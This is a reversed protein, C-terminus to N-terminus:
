KVLGYRRGYATRIVSNYFKIPNAVASAAANSVGSSGQFTQKVRSIIRKSITGAAIMKLLKKAPPCEKKGMSLVGEVVRRDLFPLRCEVGHAMFVKNCRVFNGRSMKELQKLRIKRWGSDGVKSAAICMNGYGGFLEDAGEGSLCAKFGDAAIRRALPLCLVAIEVQAKMPSEIAIAAQELIAADVDGVPVERLEIDLERCALRAFRLDDSDSDYVATYATVDRNGSKALAAVLTSDLGGSCLVCVAADADMRRKVGDILGGWVSEASADVLAPVNYWKSLKGTQCDLWSGPPLAVAGRPNDFGKLESCWEFARGNRRIYLPVKGYRDCALFTNGNADTWAFAFMGDLEELAGPVGFETLKVALVETDGTTKLVQGQSEIGERLEHFNWLEGNYSLTGGEHSFPQDSASSLDRLALRVHGHTASGASSTGRGDPGRHKIRDLMSGVDANCRFTGALGCM